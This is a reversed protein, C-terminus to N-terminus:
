QRRPTKIATMIASIAALFFVGGGIGTGWCVVNRRIGVQMSTYGFIGGVVCGAFLGVMM